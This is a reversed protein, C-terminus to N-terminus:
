INVTVGSFGWVTVETKVAWAFEIGKRRRRNWRRLPSEWAIGKEILDGGAAMDEEALGDPAGIASYASTLELRSFGRKEAVSQNEKTEHQKERKLQKQIWLM